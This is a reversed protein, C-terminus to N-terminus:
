SKNRPLLDNLLTHCMAVDRDTFSGLKDQLWLKLKVDEAGDTQQLLKDFRQKLATYAGTTLQPQPAVEPQRVLPSCAYSYVMCAQALNLSPYETVLPVYSLLDAAKLADNSLGSAECGFLIAVRQVSAQRQQLQQCLADPSLMTRVEGRRRATTAVLLDCDASAQEISPFVQAQQLIHQSGHAVWGAEEQQHVESDVLRLDSFGMTHMARAVAGVNAARAPKDLIFCLEM